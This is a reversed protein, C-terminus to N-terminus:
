MHSLMKVVNEMRSEKDAEWKAAQEKTAIRNLEGVLIQYDTFDIADKKLISKVHAEIKSEIKDKM